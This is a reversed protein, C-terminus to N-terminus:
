YPRLLLQWRSKAPTKFLSLPSVIWPRLAFRVLAMSVRHPTSEETATDEPPSSKRRKMLRVERSYETLGQGGEAVERSREKAVFIRLKAQIETM